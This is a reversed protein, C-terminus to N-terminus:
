EWILPVFKSIDGNNLYVERVMTSSVFANEPKPSFFVTKIEPALSRNVAAIQQEYEFDSSNRIGRVLINVDNKKAYDVTLGEYSDVSVNEIGSVSKIILGLRKEVPLFGQKESNYAVAVIVEDFIESAQKLIDLHGNTFPDFSGAFLAKNM